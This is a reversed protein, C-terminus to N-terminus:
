KVYSLIFFRNQAVKGNKMLVLNIREMFITQYRTVTSKQLGCDPGLYCESTEANCEVLALISFFVLLINGFIM